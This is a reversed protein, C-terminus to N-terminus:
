RRDFVLANNIAKGKANTGKSTATLVKGDKSVVRTTIIVAKGANKQRSETTLDDIRKLSIIDANPTGTIPYDKGDYRATYHVLTPRGESDVGKATVNEADGVREYTRTQSRPAPGPSYKSKAVNLEWTGHLPDAAEASQGAAPFAVALLAGLTVIRMLRKM